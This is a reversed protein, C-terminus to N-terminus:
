NARREMRMLLKGSPEFIFLEGKGPYLTFHYPEQDFYLIRSKNGESKNKSVGYIFYSKDLVNTLVDPEDVWGYHGKCRMAKADKCPEFTYIKNWYDRKTFTSDEVVEWVGELKNTLVKQPPSFIFFIFTFAGQIM